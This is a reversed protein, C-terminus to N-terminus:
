RHTNPSAARRAQWRQVFVRWMGSRKLRRLHTFDDGDGLDATEMVPVLTAGRSVDSRQKFRWATHRTGAVDEVILHTPLM